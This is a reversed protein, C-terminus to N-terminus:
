FHGREQSANAIGSLGDGVTICDGLRLDCEPVGKGNVFTGGRSRADDLTARRDYAISRSKWLEPGSEITRPM